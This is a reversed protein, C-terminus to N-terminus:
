PELEGSPTSLSDLLVMVEHASQPRDAARKALCRMVIAALHPPITGRRRMINEPKETVHAALTAQPPRGGFPTTGALMEYGMVGLAYIDARHDTHPDATAQEPAMYAPTGLAVGMSTVSAGESGSATLANAVGFDTVVASGGSILVNEPKIDRHVINDDHAYGLALSVERLIRVAEAIPLEGGKALRARLSEGRVFPMTFYPLGDTEGACLLPVIHPHQLQSVAAQFADAAAAYKGQRLLQEGLLHAKLGSVSYTTRAATQM